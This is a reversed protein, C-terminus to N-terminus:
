AGCTAGFSPVTSPVTFPSAPFVETRARLRPSSPGRAIRPHRRGRDRFQWPRAGYNSKADAITLDSASAYSRGNHRQKTNFKGAKRLGAPKRPRGAPWQLPYPAVTTM